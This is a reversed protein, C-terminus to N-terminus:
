SIMAILTLALILVIMPTHNTLASMVAVNGKYEKELEIIYEGKELTLTRKSNGDKSEIEVNFEKM